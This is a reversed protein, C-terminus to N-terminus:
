FCPFPFFYDNQFIGESYTLGRVSAIGNQSDGMVLSEYNKELLFLHLGLNWSCEMELLYM